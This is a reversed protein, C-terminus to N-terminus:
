CCQQQHGTTLPFLPSVYKMPNQDKVCRELFFTRHEGLTWGSGRGLKPIVAISVECSLDALEGM